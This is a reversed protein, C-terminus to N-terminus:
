DSLYWRRYTSLIQLFVFQILTATIASFQSLYFYHLQLGVLSLLFGASGFKLGLDEKKFFWALVAVLM